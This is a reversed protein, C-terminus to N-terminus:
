SPMRIPYDQAGVAVARSATSYDVGAAAGSRSAPDAATATPTPATAVPYGDHMDPTLYTLVVLGGDAPLPHSTVFVEFNPYGCKCWLEVKM